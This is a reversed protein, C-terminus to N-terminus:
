PQAPLSLLLRRCQDLEVRIEAPSGRYADRASLFRDATRDYRFAVRLLDYFTNSLRMFQPLSVPFFACSVLSPIRGKM